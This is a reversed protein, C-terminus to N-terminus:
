GFFFLPDACFRLKIRVASSKLKIMSIPSRCIVIKAHQLGLKIASKAFLAGMNLQIFLAAAYLRLKIQVASSKLKIM